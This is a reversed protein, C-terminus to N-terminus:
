KTALAERLRDILSDIRDVLEVINPEMPPVIDIHAPELPAAAVKAIRELAAELRAAAIEPDENADAMRANGQETRNHHRKCQVRDLPQVALM